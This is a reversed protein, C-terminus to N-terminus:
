HESITKVIVGTRQEIERKFDDAQEAPYVWEIFYPYKLNKKNTYRKDAKDREYDIFHTVNSVGYIEFREYWENWCVEKIEEYPFVVEMMTSVDQRKDHYFSQLETDTLVIAENSMWAVAGKCSTKLVYRYIFYIMGPVFGFLGICSIYSLVYEATSYVHSARENYPLMGAAIFPNDKTVLVSLVISSLMLLLLLIRIPLRRKWKPNRKYTNKKMYKIRDDTAIYQKM